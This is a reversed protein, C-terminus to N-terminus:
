SAEIADLSSMLREVRTRVTEREKHLEDIEKRLMETQSHQAELDERLNTLQKEANMRQERERNLLDVARVVRQELAAFTDAAVTLEQEKAMIAMVFLYSARRATYVLKGTAILLSGSRHADTRQPVSAHVEKWFQVNVPFQDLAM